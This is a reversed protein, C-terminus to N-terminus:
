GLEYWQGTSACSSATGQDPFLGPLFTWPKSSLDKFFVWICQYLHIPHCLLSTMPSRLNSDGSLWLRTGTSLTQPKVPKVPSHLAQGRLPIQQWIGSDTHWPLFHGQLHFDGERQGGPPTAAVFALWRLSGVDEFHRVWQLSHSRHWQSWYSCSQVWLLQCEFSHPFFYMYAKPLPHHWSPM